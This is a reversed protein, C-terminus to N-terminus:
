LALLIVWSFLGMLLVIEGPPRLSSKGIMTIGYALCRHCTWITLSILIPLFFVVAPYIEANSGWKPFKAIATASQVIFPVLVPRNSINFFQLLVFVGMVLVLLLEPYPGTQLTQVWMFALVSGEMLPAAARGHDWAIKVHRVHREKVCILLFMPFLLSSVSVLTYFFCVYVWGASERAYFFLMAYLLFSCISVLTGVHQHGLQVGYVTKVQFVKWKLSSSSDSLFSSVMAITGTIMCFCTAIIEVFDLENTSTVNNARSLLSVQQFCFSSSVLLLPVLLMQNFISAISESSEMRKWRGPSAQLTDTFLAVIYEAVHLPNNPNCIPITSTVVDRIANRQQRQQQRTALALNQVQQQLVHSVQLLGNQRGQLESTARQVSALLNRHQQVLGSVKALTCDCEEHNALDGRPGKWPCGFRSYRCAVKVAPCVTEHEAVESLCLNTKNCGAYRCRVRPSAELSSVLTKDEEFQCMNRCTPCRLLGEAGEPQSMQRLRALCSECLRIACGSHGHPKDMFECCLSCTFGELDGERGDLVNVLEQKSDSLVHSRLPPIEVRSNDPGGSFPTALPIAHSANQIFGTSPRRGGNGHIPLPITAHIPVTRSYRSVRRAPTGGNLPAPDTSPPSSDTSPAQGANRGARTSNQVASPRSLPIPITAGGLSHITPRDMRRTSGGVNPRLVHVHAGPPVRLRVNLRGNGQQATTATESEETGNAPTAAAEGQITSTTSPIATEPTEMPGEEALPILLETAEMLFDSSLLSEDLQVNYRQDPGSSEMSAERRGDDMASASETVESRAQNQEEERRQQLSMSANMTGVQRPVVVGHFFPLFSIPFFKSCRFVFNSDCTVYGSSRYEQNRFLCSFERICNVQFHSLSM